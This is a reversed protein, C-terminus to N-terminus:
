TYILCQDERNMHDKLWCKEQKVHKTGEEVREKEKLIWEISKNNNDQFVCVSKAIKIDKSQLFNERYSYIM